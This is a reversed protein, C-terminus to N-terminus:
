QWEARAELQFRLGDQPFGERGKFLGFAANIAAIGADRECARTASEPSREGNASELNAANARAADDKMGGM